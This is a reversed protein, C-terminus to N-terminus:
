AIQEVAQNAMLIVAHSKALMPDKNYNTLMELIVGDDFRFRALMM